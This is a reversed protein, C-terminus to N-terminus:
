PSPSVKASSTNLRCEIGARLVKAFEAARTEYSLEEHLHRRDFTRASGAFKAGALETIAEKMGRRNMPEVLWVGPKGTLYDWNEGPPVAALIPRDTALYEYTKASIRGGPSGDVRNPLTIFLLDAKCLHDVVKDHPVPGLVKVVDEVGSATLARAVVSMPYRNGLLTLGIHGAWEPHETIADLIAQGIIAPSSTQPDLVTLEYRGLRSWARHIRQLRSAPSRQEILTWWGSMGGTYAIEFETGCIAADAPATASDAGGRILHFKQRDYGRQRAMVAELNTKSVYVIADASRVYLDELARALHYHLRTPFSPNMDTCTLSDNLKLILPLKTLKSLAIGALGASYPMMFVVIASPKIQRVLRRGALVAPLVWFITEDPWVVLELLKRLGARRIADLLRLPRWSRVLEVSISGDSRSVGTETLVTVDWESSLKDLLKSAQIAGPATDPSFRWSICLLTDRGTGSQLCDGLNSPVESPGKRAGSTM